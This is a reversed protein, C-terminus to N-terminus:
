LLDFDEWKPQAMQAKFEEYSWPWSAVRGNKDLYWSSCGSAWVSSKMAERIRANFADAAERRPTIEKARGSRLVEILQLIYNFQHEATMIFSFNGIPSNPGGIMFWNPFGPISVTGYGENGDSWAENLTRGGAGIVEMPRFFRHTDFGTAYILCDLEHLEGDSTRVGKAEIREISETVLHANPQQIADYFRDSAILRKCGVRYDPTLRRRLDPDRVTALNAECSSVMQEYIEDNEGVLAACFGGNFREALANYYSKLSAPNARYEERKEEPIPANPEPLIWQATRQFLSISAVENVVASVIQVASSGTGIIGVRKGELSVDSRWRASHFSPGAFDDRGEIRPYVPHHLVGTATLVVDFSGEPGRASELVWKGGSFVACKIESDYRIVGDVEYKRAVSKLYSQIEPGPAYRQSWEPNPEFSYRYLHSPVDCAIGPYINDRWTGGLDSAKEFIVVDNVGAERLKICALIGSAGAGVVAVRLKREQKM